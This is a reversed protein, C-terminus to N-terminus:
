SAESAAAFHAALTHRHTYWRALCGCIQDIDDLSVHEGVPMQIFRQALRETVPLHPEPQDPPRHATQHVPPDYYARARTGEALLLTVVDDRGIGYEPHVEVLAFEYNFREGNQPYDFVSLGPIDAVGTAYRRLRELNRDCAGPLGPLGALAFAAQVESMRGNMGLAAPTTDHDIFRRLAQALEGDHTTIYGGECGNLMKTAHMSFVEARGFGGIPVGRHTCYLGHVGDFIVPVGTDQSIQDLEDISCPANVQHVGLILATDDTIAGRVAEASLAHTHEDVDCFVPRHGSWQVLHPLGVYTFAPLIVEGTPRRAVLEILAMVGICANSCVICHAVGHLEALAAELEQVVGTEGPMAEWRRRALALFDDLPPASLQGIPRVRDTFVPPAGLHAAVPGEHDPM